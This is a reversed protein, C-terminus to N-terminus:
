KVLVMKRAQRVPGAELLYFYMGSSVSRGGDDRGDWVATYFGARHSDDDILTKVKRGLVDYIALRAIGSHPLAYDISTSPNFPNPFNAGLFYAQPLLRASGLHEVRRSQGQGRGVFAAALDLRAENASGILRFRMEALLGEGVVVDGAVIGNGIVIEGPEDQLVRLLPAQRGDSALWHQEDVMELEEFALLLPDYRVVAGFARMQEVGGAWLRVRVQGEDSKAGGRADLAFFARPAVELASAWRKSATSKGFNDVFTFFDTFDVTGNKDLDFSAATGEAKKGFNDVFLFFDDFNVTKDGSFDGPLDPAKRQTIFQRTASYPGFLGGEVARVRWYFTTNEGLERDVTWGTKGVDDEGSGEVIDSASAAVTAFLSDTSLQVTYTLTAESQFSTANRFVLKPSLLSGQVGSPQPASPAASATPQSKITDAAVSENPTSARDVATVRYEYDTGNTLGLDVYTTDEMRTALTEFQGALLRRYINYGALDVESNARWALVIQQSGPIAQLGVPAAPPLIDAASLTSFSLVASETPPNNARDISGAKYYYKSGPLLNTLSIEHVAVDKADGVKTGLLLSDTGFEVFSDALEDSQWRVIASSDAAVALLSSLAPSTLDATADTVLSDIASQTPGNNNLDTSSVRYYYKTNAMLNTLSIEHTTGITPFKRLTTVSDTLGFTIRATAVEDTQWKITASKDNKYIVSPAVKITPATVDVETSTIFVGDTSEAPGNGVADTSSTKFNYSTGAELNSLVLKHQASNEGSRVSENLTTKGFRVQSTAPEDTTWEIVAANHARSTITPGTLIVPRQTDPDSDTVFSGAGGPPQEVGARKAAAAGPTFTVKKGNAGTSEIRFQYNTGPDLGALTVIHEHSFIPSGDPALDSVSFEDSTGYTSGQTGFFVKGTTEVDTVWELVAIKDRAIVEPGEIIIPALSDSAASTTFQWDFSWQNTGRPDTSFSDSKATFATIRYRYTTNAKLKKLNILHSRLTKSTSVSDKYLKSTTTSNAVNARFNDIRAYDVRLKVSQNFEACVVASTPAVVEFPPFIMQVPLQGSRTFLTLTEADELDAGVALGELGVPASAVTVEYETGPQLGTIEIDHVFDGEWDLTDAAVVQRDTANRVIYRADTPRNTEWFIFAEQLDTEYDLDLIVAPRLDAARRTRFSEEYAETSFGDVSVSRVQIEYDTDAQLGTLTAVHEFLADFDSEDVPSPTATQWVSAGEPRYYVTDANSPEATEWEVVTRNFGPEIFVYFIENEFIGSDEQFLIYDDEDVIGDDNLDAGEVGDIWQSLFFDEEDFFGDGDVDDTNEDFLWELLAFDEEDFEGNGDWDILDDSGLWEDFGGTNPDFFPDDVIEDEFEIFDLFDEDDLFEEDM